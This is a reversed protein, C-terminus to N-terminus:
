DAIYDLAQGLYEPVIPNDEEDLEPMFGTAVIRQALAIDVIHELDFDNCALRDRAHALILSARTTLQKTM